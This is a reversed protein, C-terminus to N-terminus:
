AQNDDAEARQTEELQEKAQTALAAGGCGVEGVGAGSIEHPFLARSSLLLLAASHPSCPASSSSPRGAFHQSSELAMEQKKEDILKNQELQPVSM